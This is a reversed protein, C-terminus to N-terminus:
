FEFRFGLRFARPTEIATMQEFIRNPNSSLTEVGTAKNRNLINFGDAFVHFALGGINFVKELRLDLVCLDPYGRTGKEEALVTEEGQYLDLGLDLSNVLRTYREGSLYRFYGSLNIGWPGMVMGQLKFQHRRELPFRGYANIHVNPNDYYGRAGYSDDFDTGILGRSKQWIYSAMVSWGHSFRKNVTVEIGDYDRDAGPPNVTYYEGPLTQNQDWFTISSGDYPDTVTTPEWNTWILEGSGMLADIDLSNADVDEILDRDWKRIYRLGVSFDAFLEREIGITFEDIYPNKLKHDGYGVQTSGPLYVYFPYDARTGDPNLYDAIIVFDNPNNYTFWQTINAAFYRSFSAKLMTKSDGTLDFVFGLRPALTTWKLPTMTEPVSRNYTYGYISQEGEDENQKPIIGRQHELRLGLNLTARKGITWSDQIFAAMNMLNEYRDMEKYYVGYFPDGDYTIVQYMDNRPDTYYKRGWYSWSYTFEGGFKFEHQGALSDVFYTGDANIQLRDRKNLDDYGSGGTSRNTLFEVVNPNQNKALMDFSSNVYGIKLNTYFDSGFFRTWHFNFVHTPTLQKLTTDETDFRSAGRHNRRIDSYNYSVVFKNQRDPQFSLKVYPYPRFEDYPTESEGDYPYGSVYRARKNFSVNTFFWLKDKIIPGGLSFSPEINYRYGSAHGELPTGSTNDSQLKEHTYYFGVEGSLKNGGSKTVVNIVAGKVAGFEASLGGSQVSIEEMIDMGFFVAQTGVTPDVLNVGDLNYTNDRVSSGHSTNSTFGPTMNVYTDLNRPAPISTLFVKELNVTMTTKKLDVTPTKGVVVVAEELATFEMTIDITATKGVNLVIDKRITTNFGDLEFTIEYMGPSLSPFRYIGELNTITSMQPLILAPSKISVGVGPLPQGDVDKVTGSLMGTQSLQAFGTFVFFLLASFFILSKKLM